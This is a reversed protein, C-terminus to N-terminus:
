ISRSLNDRALLWVAFNKDHTLIELVKPSTQYDQAIVLKVELSVKSNKGYFYDYTLDGYREGRELVTKDNADAGTIIIFVLLITTFFQKM